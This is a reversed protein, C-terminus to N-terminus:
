ISVSRSELCLFWSFTLGSHNVPLVTANKDIALYLSSGLSVGYGLLFSYIVAYVMRVVGNVLQRSVLEIIAIIMPYGPLVVIFSSFAIPIFCFGYYQLGRAVFGILICVTIEWIPQLSSVFTSFLENVAFLM